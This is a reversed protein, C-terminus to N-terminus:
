SDLLNQLPGQKRFFLFIKVFLSLLGTWFHQLVRIFNYCSSSTVRNSPVRSFCLFLKGKHKRLTSTQSFIKFCSHCRYRARHCSAGERVLSISFFQLFFENKMRLRVPWDNFLKVTSATISFDTNRIRIRSQTSKSGQIRSGPHGVRIM